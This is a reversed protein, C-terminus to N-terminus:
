RVVGKSKHTGHEHRDICKCLHPFCKECNFITKEQLRRLIGSKSTDRREEGLYEMNLDGLL